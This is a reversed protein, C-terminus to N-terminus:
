YGRLRPAHRDRLDGLRLYKQRTTHGDWRARRDNADVPPSIHAFLMVDKPAIHWSLQGAPTDIYVVAWDPEAPDNYSMVSPYLQCLFSVLVARETYVDLEEM